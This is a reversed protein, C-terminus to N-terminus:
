KNCFLHRKKDSNDYLKANKDPKYSKQFSNM